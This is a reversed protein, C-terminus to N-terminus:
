EDDEGFQPGYDIVNGHKNIVYIEDGPRVYSVADDETFFPGVSSGDQRRIMFGSM